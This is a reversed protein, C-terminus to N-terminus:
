QEHEEDEIEVEDRPLQDESRNDIRHFDEDFREGHM